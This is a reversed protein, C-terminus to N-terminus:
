KMFDLPFFSSLGKLKSGWTKIDAMPLVIKGMEVGVEGKQIVVLQKNQLDLKFELTTKDSLTVM